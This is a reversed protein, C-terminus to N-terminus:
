GNGVWGVVCSWAFGARGVCVGVFDGGKGVIPVYRRVMCYGALVKAYMYAYMHAFVSIVWDLGRWKGVISCYQQLSREGALVLAYMHADLYTRLRQLYVWM